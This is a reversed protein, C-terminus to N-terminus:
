VKTVVAIHFERLLADQQLKASLLQCPETHAANYARMWEHCQSGLQAPIDPILAKGNAETADYNQGACPM